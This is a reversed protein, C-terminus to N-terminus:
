VDADVHEYEVEIPEQPHKEPVQLKYVSAGPNAAAIGGQGLDLTTNIQIALAPTNPARDGFELPALRSAAWRLQDIATKIAAVQPASYTANSLDRALRMAENFCARAKKLRGAPTIDTSGGAATVPLQVAPARSNQHYDVM